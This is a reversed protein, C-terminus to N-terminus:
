GKVNGQTLTKNIILKTAPRGTGRMLWGCREENRTWFLISLAGFSVYMQLAATSCHQLAAATYVFTDQAQISGNNSAIMGGAVVVANQM